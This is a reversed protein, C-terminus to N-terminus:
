NNMFCDEVETCGITDKKRDYYQFRCVAVLEMTYHCHGLMFAREEPVHCFCCYGSPQLFIEHQAVLFHKPMRAFTETGKQYRKSKWSDM